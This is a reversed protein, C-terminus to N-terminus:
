EVRFNNETSSLTAPSGASSRRALLAAEGVLYTMAVADAVLIVTLVQEESDHAAGLAGITGLLLVVLPIWVRLNSTGIHLNATMTAIALMASAAVYAPLLQNNPTYGDHFVLSYAFEPRLLLTIATGSGVLAMLGMSILYARVYDEGRIAAHVVYPLLVVGITIGVWYVSRGLVALAAYDAAVTPPHFARMVLGDLHLLAAMVAVILGVRVHESMPEKPRDGPNPPEVGRWLRRVAVVGTGIGALAAAPSALLAGTSGGGTLVAISGVSLRGLGHMAVIAGHAVFVRAGQTVGRFLPEMLALGAGTAAVVLPWPSTLQFMRMLVPTLAAIIITLLTAAIGLRRAAIRTATRLGVGQGRSSLRATSRAIVTQILLSPTALLSLVGLVAFTEGYVTPELSRSLLLQFGVTALGGVAVFPVLTLNDRLLAITAQSM